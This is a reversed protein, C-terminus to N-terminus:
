YPEDKSSAESAAEEEGEEDEDMGLDVLCFGLWWANYGGVVEPVMSVYVVEDHVIPDV